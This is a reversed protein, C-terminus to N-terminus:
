APENLELIRRVTAESLISFSEFDPEVRRGMYLYHKVNVRLKTTANRIFRFPMM